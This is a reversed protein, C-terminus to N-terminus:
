VKNSDDPPDLPRRSLDEDRLIRMIKEGAMKREGETIHKSQQQLMLAAAACIIADDDDLKQIV